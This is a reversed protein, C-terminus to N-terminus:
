ASFSSSLSTGSKKKNEQFAKHLTFALPWCRLKLINVYIGVQVYLLFLSKLSVIWLISLKPTEYFTRPSAEGYWM